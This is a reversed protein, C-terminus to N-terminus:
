RLLLMMGSVLALLLVLYDFLRQSLWQQLHTGLYAGLFLLPSCCLAPLLTENDFMELWLFLPVKALNVALFFWAATGLLEQKKCDMMLLYIGMIPGAANGITTGLGAGAGIPLTLFTNQPIKEVLGWRRCLEVALLILVLLGLVIKMGGQELYALVIVGMIMGPIVGWSLKLLKGIQAHQRYLGIALFDGVILLPLLAGVSQKLQEDSFALAMLPMLLIGVAPTGTKAIGIFIAVLGVLLWAFLSLDFM